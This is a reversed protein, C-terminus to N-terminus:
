DRGAYGLSFIVEPNCARWCGDVRWGYFRAFQSGFPRKREGLSSSRLQRRTPRTGMSSVRSSAGASPGPNSPAVGPSAVGSPAVGSPAVGSPYVSPADGSLALGLSAADAPADGSTVAGSSAAIFLSLVQRPLM